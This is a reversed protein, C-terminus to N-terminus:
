FTTILEQLEM